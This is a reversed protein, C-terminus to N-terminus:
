DVLLRMKSDKFHLKFVSGKDFQYTLNGHVQKSLLSALNLGSSSKKAESFSINLGNGNDKVTIIHEDTGEELLVTITARGTSIFGHKFSNVILENVILGVVLVTDMDLLFRSDIVIYSSVRNLAYSQKLDELLENIYTHLSIESSNNQYLKSHIMAMSRIRNKADLIFKDLEPNDNSNSGIDFLGSIVQFNNKVRHHLEKLLVQKEKDQSQLKKSLSKLKNKQTSQLWYAWGLFLSLLGVAISLLMYKQTKQKELSIELNKVEEIRRTENLSLITSLDKTYIKRIHSISQDKLTIAKAFYKKKQLAKASLRLLQYYENAVIRDKSVTLLSDCLQPLDDVEFQEFIKNVRPDSVELDGVFQVYYAYSMWRYRPNANVFSLLSDIENELGGKFLYGDLLNKSFFYEYRKEYNGNHVLTKNKKCLEIYSDVDNDLVYLFSCHLETAFKLNLDGLENCIVNNKDFYSSIKSKDNNITEIVIQYLNRYADARLTFEKNGIYNSTYRDFSDFIIQAEKLYGSDLLLMMQAWRIKIYSISATGTNSIEQHFLEINASIFDSIELPSFGDDIVNLVFKYFNDNIQIGNNVMRNLILMNSEQSSPYGELILIASDIKSELILEELTVIHNWNQKFETTYSQANCWLTPVMFIFVIGLKFKSIM